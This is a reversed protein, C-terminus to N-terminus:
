RKMNGVSRSLRLPGWSRELPGWFPRLVPWSPGLIASFAGQVAGPWGLVPGLHAWICFCSAALTKRSSEPVGWLGGVCGLGKLPGWLLASSAGLVACSPKSLQGSLARLRYFRQDETTQTSKRRRRINQPKWRELVSSNSILKAFSGVM